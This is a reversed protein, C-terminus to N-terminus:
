IKRPLGAYKRFYNIDNVLSRFVQKDWIITIQKIEKFLLWNHWIRQFREPVIVEQLSKINTSQGNQFAWKLLYFKLLYPYHLHFSSPITNAATGAEPHPCDKVLKLFNVMGEGMQYDIETPNQFYDVHTILCPSTKSGTYTNHLVNDLSIHFEKALISMEHFSFPVDGRLRRYVAEREMYLLEM